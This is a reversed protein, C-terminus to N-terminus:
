LRSALWKLRLLQGELKLLFEWHDVPVVASNEARVMRALQPQIEHALKLLEAALQTKNLKKLDDVRLTARDHLNVRLYRLFIDVDQGMKGAAKKRDIDTWFGKQFASVADNFEGRAAKVAFLPDRAPIPNQASLLGALVILRWIM